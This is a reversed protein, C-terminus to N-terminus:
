EAGSEILRDVSKPDIMTWKGVRVAILDGRRAMRLITLKPNKTVRDLGLRHAAELPTELCRKTKLEIM